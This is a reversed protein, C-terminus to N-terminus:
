GREEGKMFATFRFYRGNGRKEMVNEPARITPIGWPETLLGQIDGERQVIPVLDRLNEPIGLRSFLKKLTKKGSGTILEDGPRRSRVLLRGDGGCRFVRDEFRAAEPVEDVRIVLGGPAEFGGKGDTLYLYGKKRALVIDEKWWLLGGVLELRMGYGRLIVGDRADRGLKELPALFAFPLRPNGKRSKGPEYLRYMSLIRVLPHLRLFDGFGCTWGEGQKVWPDEKELTRAALDGYLRAKLSLKDLAKHYGPFVEMAAPILTMRLHNRLFAPDENTQDRRYGLGIGDLYDLVAAKDVGSLPRILPGRRAPIGRLADPSSGQFFRMIQTERRDSATHGLAILDCGLRSAARRLFRHRHERALDELSRGAEAALRRLTGPGPGEHMLPVGLNGALTQAFSLDAASEEPSRIGHDYHAIFLEFHLSERLEGLAATLATSDPGGSLAALVKIGRPIRRRKWFRRVERVLPAEPGMSQM